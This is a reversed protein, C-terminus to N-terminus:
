TSESAAHDSYMGVELTFFEYIGMKPICQLRCFCVAGIGLHRLKIHMSCGYTRRTMIGQCNFGFISLIM